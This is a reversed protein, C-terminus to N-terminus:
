RRSGTPPIRPYMVAAVQDAGIQRLDDLALACQQMQANRSMHMTSGMPPKTSEFVKLFRGSRTDSTEDPIRCAGLLPGAPM